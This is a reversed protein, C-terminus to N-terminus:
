VVILKIWTLAHLHYIDFYHNEKFLYSKKKNMLIIKYVKWFRHTLTKAIILRFPM